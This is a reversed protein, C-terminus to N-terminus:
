RLLSLPTCSIMRPGWGSNGSNSTTESADGAFTTAVNTGPAPM